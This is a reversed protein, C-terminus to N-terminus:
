RDGTHLGVYKRGGITKIEYLKYKGLFAPCTDCLYNHRDEKYECKGCGKEEYRYILYNKKVKALNVLHEPYWAKNNIIVTNKDTVVIKKKKKKVIPTGAVAVVVVKKKTKKTVM